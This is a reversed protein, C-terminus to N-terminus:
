DEYYYPTYENGNQVFVVNLWSNENLETKKFHIVSTKNEENLTLTFKNDKLQSIKYTGTPMGSNYKIYVEDTDNYRRADSNKTTMDPHITIFYLPFYDGDVVNKQLDQITLYIQTSREGEIFGVYNGVYKDQANNNDNCAVLSIGITGIILVCLLLAVIKKKM